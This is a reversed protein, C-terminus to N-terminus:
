IDSARQQRHATITPASQRRHATFAPPCLQQSPAASICESFDVKKALFTPTNMIAIFKEVNEEFEDLAVPLEKKAHRFLQELGQLFEKSNRPPKHVVHHLAVAMCGFHFESWIVCSNMVLYPAVTKLMEDNELLVSEIAASKTLQSAVRIAAQTYEMSSVTAADHPARTVIGAYTTGGCCTLYDIFAEVKRVKIWGRVFTESCRSLALIETYCSVLEGHSLCYPNYQLLENDILHATEHLLVCYFMEPCMGRVTIRGFRECSGCHLGELLSAKRTMDVTFCGQQCSQHWRDRIAAVVLPAEPTQFYDTVFLDAKRLVALINFDQNPIASIRQEIFLELTARVQEETSWHRQAFRTEAKMHSSKTMDEATSCVIEQQTGPSKQAHYADKHRVDEFLM